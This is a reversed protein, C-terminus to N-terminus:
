GDVMLAAASTGFAHRDRCPVIACALLRLLEVIFFFAISVMIYLAYFYASKPLNSTIFQLGASLAFPANRRWVFSATKSLNLSTQPGFNDSIWHFSSFRAHLVSRWLFANTTVFQLGCFPDKASSM